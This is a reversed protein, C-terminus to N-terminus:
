VGKSANHFCPFHVVFSGVDQHAYLGELTPWLTVKLYENDVVLDKM